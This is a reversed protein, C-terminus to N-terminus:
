TKAKKSKIYQVISSKLIYFALHHTSPITLSIAVITFYPSHSYQLLLNPIPNMNLTSFNLPSRTFCVLFSLSYINRFHLPYMWDLNTVSTFKNIIERNSMLYRFHLPSSLCFLIALAGLLSPSLYLTLNTM